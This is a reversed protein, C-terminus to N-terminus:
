GEGAPRPLSHPPKGVFDALRFRYITGGPFPVPDDEPRTQSFSYEAVEFTSEKLSDNSLAIYFINTKRGAYPTSCDALTKGNSRVVLRGILYRQKETKYTITFHYYDAPSEHQLSVTFAKPLNKPTVDVTITMASASLAPSLLLALAGFAALKSYIQNM